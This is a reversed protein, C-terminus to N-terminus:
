PTVELPYSPGAARRSRLTLVREGALGPPVVFTVETPAVSTPAVATGDLFLETDPACHATTLTVTAGATVPSSNALIMPAVVVATRDRGAPLGAVSSIAELRRVGPELDHRPLRLEVTTATRAVVTMPWGDSPVGTPDGAEAALRFVTDATVGTAQITTSTDAGIRDPIATGLRPGLSPVVIASPVRVPPGDRQELQQEVVVLSVTYAVSLRIPRSAATWLKSLGDLDLPDMTIRLPEVLPPPPTPLFPSDLGVIASEHLRRMVAALAVHVIQEQDGTSTPEAPYGTLLYHLCLALPPAGRSTHSGTRPPEMNRFAPNPEIRYLFWNLRPGEAERDLSGVTVEPKPSMGADGLGADALRKLTDDIVQIANAATM